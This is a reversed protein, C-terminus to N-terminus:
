EIESKDKGGAAQSVAGALRYDVWHWGDPPEIRVPLHYVYRLTLQYIHAARDYDVSVPEHVPMDFRLSEAVPLVAPLWREVLALAYAVPDEGQALSLRLPLDDSSMQVLTENGFLPLVEVVYQARNLPYGAVPLELEGREARIIARLESRAVQMDDNVLLYSCTPAYFMEEISRQLRDQIDQTSADRQELRQRLTDLTPPAIFITVSNQPYQRRIIDAGKYEIDAILDRGEVIAQEVFDRPVGYFQGPHVEQHEILRDEDIMRQFEKDSVFLRERGHQEEPRRPRTTATPLQRLNDLHTVADALLVNKGVGGPGVLIYLMGSRERPVNM